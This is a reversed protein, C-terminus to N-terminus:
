RAGSATSRRPAGGTYVTDLGDTFGRVRMSTSNELSSRGSRRATPWRIAWSSAARHTSSCSSSATTPVADCSCAAARM